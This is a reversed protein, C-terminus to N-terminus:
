LIAESDMQCYRIHNFARNPHYRGCHRHNDGTCGWLRWARQGPVHLARYHRSYDSRNLYGASFYNAM